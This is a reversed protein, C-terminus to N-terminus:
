LGRRKSNGVDVHVTMRRTVTQVCDAFRAVPAGLTVDLVKSRQAGTVQMQGAFAQIRTDQELGSMAGGLLKM